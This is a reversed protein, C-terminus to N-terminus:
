CSDTSVVTHTHTMKFYRKPGLIPRLHTVPGPIHCWNLKTLHPDLSVALDYFLDYFGQTGHIIQRNDKYVKTQVPGIWLLHRPQAILPFFNSHNNKAHRLLTLLAAERLTAAARTRLFVSAPPGSLRSPDQFTGLHDSSVAGREQM